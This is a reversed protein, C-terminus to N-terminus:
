ARGLLAKWVTRPAHRWGAEKVAAAFVSGALALGLVGMLVELGWSLELWPSQLGLLVGYPVWSACWLLAGVRIRLRSPIDLHHRAHRRAHVGSVPPCSGPIQPM